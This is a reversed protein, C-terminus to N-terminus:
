KLIEEKIVELVQNKKEKVVREREERTEIWDLPMYVHIIEKTPLSPNNFIVSVEHLAREDGDETKVMITEPDVLVDPRKFTPNKITQKDIIIYEPPIEVDKQSFIEAVKKAIERSVKEFQDASLRDLEKLEVTSFNKTNIVTSFVEKFLNRDRIRTLYDRAYGSSKQIIIDMLAYDDCRLYNEIFESSDEFKYVREIEDIGEEIAFEIGKVLMADVIRRIRHQYVQTHMNYKALLYQEVAYLGEEKIGIEWEERSVRTETLTEILKHHDFIGYKVGAFYSDRILYDIKDADLPGSIISKEITKKNTQLLEVVKELKRNGLIKRIEECNDLLYIGMFEHANSALYKDLMKQDIYKEMVQESVHSFPGHGVDHLLGALRIIERSSKSLNLKLAIEGALHMVGISHEFRTHSAGPYVLTALGLQKIRRLRQFLRTNILKEELDNYEVLGYLPDRVEM